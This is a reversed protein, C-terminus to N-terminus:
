GQSSLAAWANTYPERSDATYSSVPRSEYSDFLKDKCAKLTLFSSLPLLAPSYLSGPTTATLNVVSIVARCKEGNSLPTKESKKNPPPASLPAAQPVASLTAAARRIPLEGAAGTDSPSSGLHPQKYDARLFVITKTITIAVNSCPKSLLEM